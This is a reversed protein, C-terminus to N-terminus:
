RSGRRLIRCRHEFFSRLIKAPDQGEVLDIMDIHHHSTFRGLEQRHHELQAQIEESFADDCKTLYSAGTEPDRVYVWGVSPPHLEWKDVVRLAILDNHIALLALQREWGTDRSVFDSIIFIVGRKPGHRENIAQLSRSLFTNRKGTEIASLTEVLRGAQVIGRRPPVFKELTESFLALGIRDRSIAASFILIAAAELALKAKEPRAWFLSGSTDLAVMVSLDREELYTKVYPEGLQALKAWVFAKPDDGPTYKRIEDYDIGKGRFLSRYMGLFKGLVYRKVQLQIAFRKNRVSSKM